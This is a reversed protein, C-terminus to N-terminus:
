IQLCCLDQHPPENHAVDDVDVSNQGRTGSNEIHYLKSKVNKSFKCIFIKDDAKQYMYNYSNVHDTNLYLFM